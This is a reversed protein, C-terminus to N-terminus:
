ACDRVVKHGFKTLMKVQAEAEFRMEFIWNIPIKSFQASPSTVGLLPTQQCVNTIKHTAILFAVGRFLALELSGARDFM